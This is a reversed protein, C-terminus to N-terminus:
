LDLGRWMGPLADTGPGVGGHQPFYFTGNFRAVVREGHRVLGRAFGFHRKASVGELETQLWQGLQGPAIFDVSLNVTPPGRRHGAGLAAGSAAAIDALTMLVGGHCVGISNCHQPEVLLGFDVTGAHLRRYLPQMGDIFGLGTPMLGFDGPVTDATKETPM